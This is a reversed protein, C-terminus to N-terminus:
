QVSVNFTVSIDTSGPLAGIGDNKATDELGAVKVASGGVPPMHRLTVTLKGTGAAAIISNKLGIPLGGDDMDDYMHTIVSGVTDGTFFVQHEDDEEAIELTVDETPMALENLFSMGVKYTTGATLSIDDMTPAMGGEGDADRFTVDFSNGGAEEFRLTMTTFAENENMEGPNEVDGGCAALVLPAAILATKFISRM